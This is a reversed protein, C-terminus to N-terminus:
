RFTVGPHQEALIMAQPLAARRVEYVNVQSPMVYGLIGPRSQQERDARDCLEQVTRLTRRLRENEVRTDRLETELTEVNGLAEDRDDAVMTAVADSVEVEREMESIRARADRLEAQLRAEVARHRKIEALKASENGWGM